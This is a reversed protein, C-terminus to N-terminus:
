AMLGLAILKTRIDNALTIVTALDTSAAALTQQAVPATGHFGIGTPGLRFRTSGGAQFSIGTWTANGGIYMEDSINRLGPLISAGSARYISFGGDKGATFVGSTGGLEIGNLSFSFSRNAGIRMEWTANGAAIPELLFGNTGGNGLNITAIRGAAPTLVIGIDSASGALSILTLGSPTMGGWNTQVGDTTNFTFGTTANLEFQLAGTARDIAFFIPRFSTPGTAGSAKYYEFYSEMFHTTNFYHSEIQLSFRPEAAVAKGGGDAVNYGLYMVRDFQGAFAAGGIVLGFPGHTDGSPANIRVLEIPTPAAASGAQTLVITGSQSVEVTETFDTWNLLRSAQSPYFATNSNDTVKIDVVKAADFWAEIDGQANSTLSTIAAGGAAAAYMDSVATTTGTLYVVCVAGQIVNGATDKVNHRMQSRAM